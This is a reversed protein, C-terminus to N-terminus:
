ISISLSFNWWNESSTNQTCNSSLLNLDTTMIFTLQSSISKEWGFRREYNRLNDFKYAHRRPAPTTRILEVLIAPIVFRMGNSKRISQKMAELRFLLSFLIFIMECIGVPKGSLRSRFLSIIMKTRSTILLKNIASSLHPSHISLPLCLLFFSSQNKRGSKTAPHRLSFVNKMPWCSGASEMSASYCPFHKFSLRVHITYQSLDNLIVLLHKSAWCSLKRTSTNMLSFSM